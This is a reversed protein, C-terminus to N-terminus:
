SIPLEGRHEGVRVEVMFQLDKVYERETAVLEIIASYRLTDKKVADSLDVKALRMGHRRNITGGKPM